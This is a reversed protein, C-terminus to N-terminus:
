IAKFISALLNMGGPMGGAGAAAPAASALQMPGAAGGSGGGFAGQLMGLLGPLQPGSGGVAEGSPGPTPLSMTSSAQPPASPLAMPPTGAAPSPAPPTASMPGGSANAAPGGSGAPSPQMAYSLARFALPSQPGAGAFVDAWGQMPRSADGGMMRGLLNGTPARANLEGPKPSFPTGPPAFKHQDPVPPQTSPMPPAWKHQDPVPEQTPNQSRSVSDFASPDYNVKGEPAYFQHGGIRLPTTPSKAWGPDNRGLAKQAVPAYFHTAGGTLKPLAGRQTADFILAAEQYEPSSADFRRPDNGSGPNWPEFQNKALVVDRLSKGWRGSQLRNLIVEAVAGRGEPSASEALMTRIALDRDEPTM